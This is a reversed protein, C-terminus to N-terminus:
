SVTPYRYSVGYNWLIETMPGIDNLARLSLRRRKRDITLRANAEASCRRNSDYCNRPCNAMSAKCVSLFNYSDYVIDNTYAIMYGGFGEEDRKMAVTKTIFEGIFDVIIDGKQISISSFLGKGIVDVMNTSLGDGRILLLNSKKVVLTERVICLARMVAAPETIPNPRRFTHRHSYRM